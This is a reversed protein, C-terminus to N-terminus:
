SEFSFVLAQDLYSTFIQYSGSQPFYQVSVQKSSELPREKILRGESSYLFSFEQVPDNVVFVEQGPAFYYYQFSLKGGAVLNTQFRLNGDQDLFSLQNFDQRVISFTRGGEDNVLYYKSDRSPKILQERKTINGQLNIQIIEGEETITTLLTNAATNGYEIFFSSGLRGRVDIPFGPAPLGDKDLAHIFGKSQSAIIYDRTRVSLHFPVQSFLGNLQVPQWGALNNMFQDYLFINGTADTILITYNKSNDYDLVNLSQVQQQMNDPSDPYSGVNNGQRDLLHIVNNETIFLYQTEGNKYFDIPFIDSIIASGLSKKLIIDGSQGIIHLHDNATQIFTELEGTQLHRLQFPRSTIPAGLITRQSVTFNLNKDLDDKPKVYELSIETEFDARNNGLQLFAREFTLLIAENESFFKAWPKALNALLINWLNPTNVISTINAPSLQSDWTQNDIAWTTGEEIDRILQKLVEIENSILLKNEYEAYYSQPFGSFAEGLWYYPVEPVNLLRIDLEGFREKYLTDGNLGEVQLGFRDLESMATEADALEVIVLKPSGSKSLSNLLILSVENGTWKGFNSLSVNYKDTVKQRGAILSSHHVQWYGQLSSQWAEFDSLYYHLFYATQQPILKGISIKGKTQKAFTNLFNQTPETGSASIGKLRIRNAEQSVQLKTTNAIEKYSSLWNETGFESFISALEDLRKLNFYFNGFPNQSNTYTFIQANSQDFSQRSDNEDLLRVVDEVLFPTFSASIFGNTVLLTLIDGNSPHNIETLTFGRHNRSSVSFGASQYNDLVKQLSADGNAPPYPFSFLFDFENRSTTHLSALFKKGRLIRDLSGDRGTLSDVRDLNSRIAGAAPIEEIIKWIEGSEWENWSKVLDDTEYVILANEPILKWSNDINKSFYKEWLFFAGIGIVLLVIFVTFFKRIM